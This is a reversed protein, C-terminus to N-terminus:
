TLYSFKQPLSSPFYFDAHKGIKRLVGTLALASSFIDAEFDRHPVVLIRSNKEIGQIIQKRVDLAM